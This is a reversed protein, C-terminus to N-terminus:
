DDNELLDFFPPPLSVILENIMASTDAILQDIKASPSEISDLNTIRENLAADAYARRDAVYCEIDEQCRERALLAYQNDEKTPQQKRAREIDYAIPSNRLADFLFKHAADEYFSRMRSDFFENPDATQSCVHHYFD